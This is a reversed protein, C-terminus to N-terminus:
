GSKTMKYELSLMHPLFAPQYFQKSQSSSGVFADLWCHQNTPNILFTSPFFLYLKQFVRLLARDAGAAAAERKIKKGEGCVLHM